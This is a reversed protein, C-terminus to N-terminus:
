EGPNYCQRLGQDQPLGAMDSSSVTVASGRPYSTQGPELAPMVQAIEESSKDYLMGLHM